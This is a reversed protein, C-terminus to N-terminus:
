KFVCYANVFKGESEGDFIAAEPTRVGLVQEVNGRLLIFLYFFKNFMYLILDM